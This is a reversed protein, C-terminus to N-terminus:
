NGSTYFGHIFNCTSCHLQFKYSMGKKETNLEILSFTNALCKSCLTFKAIIGCLIDIDIIRFGNENSTESSVGAIKHTESTSPSPREEQDSATADREASEVSNTRCNNIFRRKKRRMNNHHKRRTGGM